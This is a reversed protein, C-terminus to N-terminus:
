MSSRMCTAGRTSSGTSGAASAASASEVCRTTQNARRERSPLTDHLEQWSTLLPPSSPLGTEVPMLLRRLCTRCRYRQDWFVLYCLGYSILFWLGALTTYGLDFIFQYRNLHLFPTRPTWFFNLLALLAGSILVAVALKLLLFGWYLVHSRIQSQKDAWLM